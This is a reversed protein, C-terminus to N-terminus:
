WTLDCWYSSMALRASRGRGALTLLIHSTGQSRACEHECHGLTWVSGVKGEV